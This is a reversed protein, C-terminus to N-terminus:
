SKWTQKSDCVSENLRFKCESSDHQVLFGTENVGSILNFITVNINKVKDPICARAYSDDITNCGRGRKILM